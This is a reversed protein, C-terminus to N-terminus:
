GKGEKSRGRLQVAKEAGQGGEKVDM